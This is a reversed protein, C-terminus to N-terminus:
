EDAPSIEDVDALLLLVRGVEDDEGDTVLGAVTCGGTAEEEEGSGGTVAAAAATRGGVSRGVRADDEEERGFLRRRAADVDDDEDLSTGDLRRALLVVVEGGVLCRRVAVENEKDLSTEDFRMVVRVAIEGLKVHVEFVADVNAPLSM